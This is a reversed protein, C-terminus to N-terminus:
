RLAVDVERIENNGVTYKVQEPPDIGKIMEKVAWDVITDYEATTLDEEVFIYFDFPMEKYEFYIFLKCESLGTDYNIGCFMQTNYKANVVVKQAEAERDAKMQEYYEYAMGKNNFDIGIAM